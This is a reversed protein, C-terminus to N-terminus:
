QIYQDKMVYDPLVPNVEEIPNSQETRRRADWLKKCGMIFEKCFSMENEVREILSSYGKGIMDYEIATLSTESPSAVSELKHKKVELKILDYKLRISNLDEAASFLTLPLSSIAWELDADTIPLSEMSEHVQHVKVFYKAFVSDYLNTVAEDYKSLDAGFMNNAIDDLTM